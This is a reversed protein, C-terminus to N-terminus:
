RPGTPPRSDRKQVALLRLNGGAGRAIFRAAEPGEWPGEYGRSRGGGAVWWGQGPIGDSQRVVLVALEPEGRAEAERDVDGLMACLQACRRGRSAIASSSSCSAMASRPAPRAGRRGSPRAGGGSRRAREAMLRRDALVLRGDTGGGARPPSASGSAATTTAAHHRRRRLRRGRAGRARRRHFRRRPGSRSVLRRGHRASRRHHLAARGRRRRRADGDGAARSMCAAAVPQGSLHAATTTSAPRAASARRSHQDEHRLRAGRHQAPRGRGQGRGLRQEAPGADNGFRAECAALRAAAVAALPLLSASTM